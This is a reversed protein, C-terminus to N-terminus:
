SALSQDTDQVTEADADAYTPDETYRAHSAANRAPMFGLIVLSQAEAGFAIVRRNGLSRDLPSFGSESDDRGGYLNQHAARADLVRLGWDDLPCWRPRVKASGHLRM